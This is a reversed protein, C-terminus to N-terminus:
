QQGGRIRELLKPLDEYDYPPRKRIAWVWVWQEADHVAYVIRRNGLRLRKKTM